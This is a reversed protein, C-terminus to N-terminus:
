NIFKLARYARRLLILELDKKHKKPQEFYMRNTTSQTLNLQKSQGGGANKAVM